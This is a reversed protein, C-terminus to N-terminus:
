TPSPTWQHRPRSRRDARQEGPAATARWARCTRRPSQGRISRDGRARPRSPCGAGIGRADCGGRVRRGSGPHGGRRLGVRLPDGRGRDARAADDRRTARRETNRAATSPPQDFGDEQPSDTVRGMLQGGNPRRRHHLRRRQRLRLRRLAPLRLLRRGRPPPRHPRPLQVLDAGGRARPPGEVYERFRESDISGPSVTNCRIERRGFDIAISRTLGGLAAKSTVYSFHDPPGRDGRDLLRQRDLRGGEPSCRRCRRRAGRSRCRSTSSCRGGGTTWTPTLLDGELVLAANNVLGDLSGTREVTEAVVESPSGEATLDGVVAVAGIAEAVDEVRPDIDISSSRREKRSAPRRSRPASGAPPGPSSSPSGALKGVIERRDEHRADHAPRRELADLRRARRAAVAHAGGPARLFDDMHEAMLEQARRGDGDLIAQGIEQHIQGRRRGAAPTTSSTPPWATATSRTSPAASATWSPTAPPAASSWHFALALQDGERTGATSAAERAMLGRLEDLHEPDQREAARRAMFPEIVLRADMLDRYTARAMRFFLGLTRALTRPTSRASRTAARAERAQDPRRRVDRARPPGRPDLRPQCRVARGARGRGSAPRRGRPRPRRDGRRDASAVRHPLKAPRLRRHPLTEEPAAARGPTARRSPPSAREDSSTSPCRAGASSRGPKGPMPNPTPCRVARRARGDRYRDLLEELLLRTEARSVPAGPCYHVGASFAVHRRLERDVDYRTPSTSSASTATPRDTPSRSGPQERPDHRRPPRRGRRRPPRAGAVPSRWRLMEEIAKPISRGTPARAAGVARPPGRPPQRADRDPAPDDRLRGRRARAAHQPLRRRLAGGQRGRGAERPDPTIADHQPDARREAILPM